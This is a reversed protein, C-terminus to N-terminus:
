AATTTRGPTALDDLLAHEARPRLHRVALHRGRWDILDGWTESGKEGKAPITYTKWLEEGTDASLAMLFGRMGGDGGSSGVIVKGKAIVPASTSTTGKAVDAYQKNFILAGTHRNLAVLYNDTTTFYVKDQWIAAGRNAGNAKARPDAYRWILWRYPRRRRLDFETGHRLARGPLCDAFEAARTRWPRPLGV